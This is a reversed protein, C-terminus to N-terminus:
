PFDDLLLIMYNRYRELTEKVVFPLSDEIRVSEKVGTSMATFGDTNKTLDTYIKKVAQMMASKLASPIDSANIYGVKYTIYKDSNQLFVTGSTNSLYVKNEFFNLYPAIEPTIDEGDQEIKVVERIRSKKTYYTRAGYFTSMFERIERDYVAINYDEYIYGELYNLLETLFDDYETEDVAIGIYTKVLELLEDIM